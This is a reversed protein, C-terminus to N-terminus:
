KGMGSSTQLAVLVTGRGGLLRFTPSMLDRHVTKCLWLLKIGASIVSFSSGHM